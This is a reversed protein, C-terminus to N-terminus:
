FIVAWLIIVGALLVGGGTALVKWIDSAAKIYPKFRMLGGIGTIKHEDIDRLVSEQDYAVGPVPYHPWRKNEDYIIMEDTEEARSFITFYRRRIVCRHFGDPYIKYLQGSTKVFHKDQKKGSIRMIEVSDCGKIYIRM